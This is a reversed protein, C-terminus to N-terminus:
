ESLEDLNLRTLGGADSFATRGIRRHDRFRFYVIGVAIGTLIALLLGSIIWMVTAIFIDRTTTVFYRELKQILYPDEGLWQVYKEYKVRDILESAAEADAADFVFVSYNGVRRYVTGPQPIEALNKAFLNDAEISSQPNTYEIILMRGVPYQATVAETGAILQVGALVPREGVAATIENIRTSFVTTERVEAWDPLHKVLVPIGDDESVEQAAPPAPQGFVVAACVLIFAISFISNRYLFM